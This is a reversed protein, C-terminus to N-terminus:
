LKAEHQIKVKFFAIWFQKQARNARRKTAASPAPNTNKVTIGPSGEISVIRCISSVVGSRTYVMSPLKIASNKENM